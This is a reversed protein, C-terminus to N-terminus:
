AQHPAAGVTAADPGHQWFRVVRQATMASLRDFNGAAHDLAASSKANNGPRVLIIAKTTPWGFGAAKCLILVPDARESNMLKDIAEVPVSCLSSLAAVTEEYQGDNALQALDRENLVGRKRLGAIRAQAQTFDHTPVVSKEVEGSVQSLVRRIEAQTEPKASALLRRQVVAAAKTVLEHFLQPPIDDRKAVTEALIGDGEARRVLSSFGSESLKAGPNGAILRVVDRDGRAVLIDTVNEQLARRSSIAILHPQGKSKAIDVLDDSELRPSQSLVPGAVAIDDDKALRRLVDIPANTVPALRRSLEARARSEIEEILRSLVDGFLAVQVENLRDSSQLFLTAIQQVMVGRKEPTGNQVADELEPILSAAALM